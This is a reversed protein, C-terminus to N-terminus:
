KGSMGRAKKISRQPSSLAEEDEDSALVRKRKASPTVPASLAETDDQTPTRARSMQDARQDELSNAIAEQLGAFDEMEQDNDLEEPMDEWVSESDDEGNGEDEGENSIDESDADSWDEELDEVKWDTGREPHNPPIGSGKIALVAAAAPPSAIYWPVTPTSVEVEDEADTYDEMEDESDDKKAAKRSGLAKGNAGKVDPFQSRPIAEDPYHEEHSIQVGRAIRQRMRQARGLLELVAKNKRAHSSAIQGRVADVGRSMGGANNVANTMVQLDKAAMDSGFANLGSKAIFANISDYLASRETHSWHHKLVVQQYKSDRRRKIQDLWKNYAYSWSKDNPNVGELRKINTYAQLYEGTESDLRRFLICVTWVFEPGHDGAPRTWVGTTPDEIFLAPHQDNKENKRVRRPVKHANLDPELVFRPPDLPTKTTDVERLENVQEYDTDNYPNKVRYRAIVVNPDTPHREFTEEGNAGGKVHRKQSIGPVPLGTNSPRPKRRPVKAKVDPVTPAPATASVPAIRVYQTTASAAQAVPPTAPPPSPSYAASSLPSSVAPLYPSSGLGHPSTDASSDINTPSAIAFSADPRSMPTASTGRHLDILYAAVSMDEQSFTREKKAEEDTAGDRANGFGNTDAGVVRAEPEGGQIDPVVPDSDIEIADGPSRGGSLPSDADSM